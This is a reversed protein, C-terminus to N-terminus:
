LGPNSFMKWDIIPYAFRQCVAASSEDFDSRHRKLWNLHQQAHASWRIANHWSHGTCGREPGRQLFVYNM